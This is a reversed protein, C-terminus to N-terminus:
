SNWANRRRSADIVARHAEWDPEDGEGAREDCAAFLAELDAVSEFRATEAHRRLRDEAAARLWASLSLGERRAQQVFRDHDRDPVVLQVRAM